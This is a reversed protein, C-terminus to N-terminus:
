TRAGPATHWCPPPASRRTMLCGWASSCRMRVCRSRLAAGLGAALRQPVRRARRDGDARARGPRRGVRATPGSAHGRCVRALAGLEAMADALSWRAAGVALNTTGRLEVVVASEIAPACGPRAARARAVSHASTMSPVTPRRRLSPRWRPLSGASGRPPTRSGTAGRSRRRPGRAGHRRAGGDSAARRGRRRAAPPRGRRRARPRGGRRHRAPARVGAMELADTVVVGDFGLEERLLDHLIRRSLTAPRDDLAPVLLHGTMVGLAGAGIAAVFPPLDRARITAEDADVVRAAGPALRDDTAGHGPFHKVVAAVGGAQLGRVFAAGHRAVLDPDAGFSRVGIVPNEPDSNVDVSPAFDVDVGARRLDGAIAEAVAATAVEDDVVGLALNGPYRSGRGYDLRTM